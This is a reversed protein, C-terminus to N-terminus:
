TDSLWRLLEIGIRVLGIVRAVHAIATFSSSWRSRAVPRRRPEKERRAQRRKESRRAQRRKRPATLSKFGKQRLPLASPIGAWTDRVYRDQLEGVETHTSQDDVCKRFDLPVCPCNRAAGWM